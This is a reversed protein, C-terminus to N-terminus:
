DVEVQIHSYFAGEGNEGSPVWIFDSKKKTYARAAIRLKIKKNNRLRYLDYSFDARDYKQPKLIAQLERHVLSIQVEKQNSQTSAKLYAEKLKELLEDEPIKSGIKERISTLGKIVRSPILPSTVLREQKPGYWVTAVFKNINAEITFMGAKFTPYHGSFSLNCESLRKELELGFNNKLEESYKQEKLKYENLFELIVEFLKDAERGQLSKEIRKISTRLKDLTELPRQEFNYIRNIFTKIKQLTKIETNLLKLVDQIEM